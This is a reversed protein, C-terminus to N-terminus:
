RVARSLKRKRLVGPQSATKYHLLCYDNQHWQMIKYPKVETNLVSRQTITSPLRMTNIVHSYRQIYSLLRCM